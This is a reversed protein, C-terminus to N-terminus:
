HLQNPIIPFYFEPVYESDISRVTNIERKLMKFMNPNLADSNYFTKVAVAKDGYM